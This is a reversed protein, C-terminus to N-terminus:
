VEPKRVLLTFERLGYNEILTVDADFQHRCHAIWPEPRTRYLGQLPETVDPRPPSVFNVAFGITSARHLEDLTDSVFRKWLMESFGLQVNFVGSAVSYDALRPLSASLVFQSSLDDQWLSRALEIMTPAVDSGAYDVGQGVRTRLFRLLAGYGCGLDNVSYSRHRGAIKMLQMFRLDQTLECTWDVGWPTAGFERARGDYYRAIAEIPHKSSRSQL